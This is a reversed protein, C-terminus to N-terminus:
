HNASLYEDLRAIEYKNLNQDLDQSILLVITEEYIVYISEPLIQKVRELIIEQRLNSLGVGAPPIAIIYFTEKLHVGLDELRQRINSVNSNRLLDALFYSYMM